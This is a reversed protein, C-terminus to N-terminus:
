DKAIGVYKAELSALFSLADDSLVPVGAESQRAAEDYLRFFAFPNGFDAILRGTGFEAVIVRTMYYGTPHGSM